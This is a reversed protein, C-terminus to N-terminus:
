LEIFIDVGKSRLGNKLQLDGTWLKCNLELALAVYPTDKLDIDKCLDYARIRNDLSIESEPYLTLAQVLQEIIEILEDPTHVSFRQIKSFHKFLEVFVFNPASFRHTGPTLLIERIQSPKLIASFIKNFDVVVTEM